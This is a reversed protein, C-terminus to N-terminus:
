LFANSLLPIFIISFAKFGRELDGQKKAVGM